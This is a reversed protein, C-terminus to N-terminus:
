GHHENTEEQPNTSGFAKKVLTLENGGQPLVRYLVEDVSERILHIGMGGLPRRDLPISLDPKPVTTPDFQPAQDRLSVVLHDEDRRIVIELNGPGKQYGHLIVNTAAEDVALILDEIALPPTHLEAASEETFSRIAALNKLEAPIRLTYPQDM